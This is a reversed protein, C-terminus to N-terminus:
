RTRLYKRSGAATSNSPTSSDIRKYLAVPIEWEYGIMPSLFETQLEVFEDSDAIGPLPYTTLIFQLKPCEQLIKEVLQRKTSCSLCAPNMYLVTASTINANLMNGQLLQVGSALAPGTAEVDSAAHPMEAPLASQALESAFAHRASNLEVGTALRTYGKVAMHLVLRGTGSGLDFFSEIPSASSANLMAAMAEVSAPAMEGYGEANCCANTQELECESAAEESAGPTM